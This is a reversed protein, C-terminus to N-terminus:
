PFILQFTEFFLLFFTVKEFFTVKKKQLELHTEVFFACYV